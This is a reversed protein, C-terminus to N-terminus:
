LKKIVIKSNGDKSEINDIVFLEGTIEEMLAVSSLAYPCGVSRPTGAAEISDTYHHLNCDKVSIMLYDDNIEYDVDAALDYMKAMEILGDMATEPTSRDIKSGTSGTKLDILTDVAEWLSEGFARSIGGCGEGSVQWMGNTLDRLIGFLVFKVPDDMLDDHGAM